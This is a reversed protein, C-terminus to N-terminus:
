IWFLMGSDANNALDVEFGQGRLGSAMALALEKEARDKYNSWTYIGTLGVATIFCVALGMAARRKGKRSPRQKKNM